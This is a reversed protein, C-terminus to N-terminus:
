NGRYIALFRNLVPNALHQRGAPLCVEARWFYPVSPMQPDFYAVGDMRNGDRGDLRYGVVHPKLRVQHVPLNKKPACHTDHADAEYLEKCGQAAEPFFSTAAAGLACGVCASTQSFSLYGPGTPPKFVVVASGDAGIRGDVLRWGKPVALVSDSGDLFVAGPLGYFDLQSLHEPKIKSAFPTARGSIFANDQESMVDAFRTHFARVQKGALNMRAPTVQPASAAEGPEYSCSAPDGGGVAPPAFPDLVPCLALCLVWSLAFLRRISM